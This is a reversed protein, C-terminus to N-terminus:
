LLGGLQSLHVAGHEFHNQAGAYDKVMELVWNQILELFPAPPVGWVVQGSPDLEFDGRHVQKGVNPCGRLQIMSLTQAQNVPSRGWSGWLGKWIPLYRM